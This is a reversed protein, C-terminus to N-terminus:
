TIMVDGNAIHGDFIFHYLLVSLTWFLKLIFPIVLWKSAFVIKQIISKLNIRM